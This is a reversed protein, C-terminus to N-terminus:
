PLPLHPEFLPTAPRVLHDVEAPESKTSRLSTNSSLSLRSVSLEDVSETETSWTRQTNEQRLHISRKQGRRCRSRTLLNLGQSVRDEIVIGGLLQRNLLSAASLDM